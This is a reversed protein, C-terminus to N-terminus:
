GKLPFAFRAAIRRHWPASLPSELVAHGSYAHIFTPDTGVDAQLGVHKPAAHPRMQFILVDGSASQHLPKRILHRTAADLLVPNSPDDGWDQSYAPPTEPEDGFVDRWVGRLLGLCDTGVGKHSGQHLYPTGIWTRAAAVADTM